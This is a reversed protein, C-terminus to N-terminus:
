TGSKLRNRYGHLLLTTEFGIYLKRVVVKPIIELITSHLCLLLSFRVAAEPGYFSFYLPLVVVGALGVLTNGFAVCSLVGACVGVAM